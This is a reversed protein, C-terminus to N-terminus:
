RSPVEATIFTAGTAANTGVYYGGAACNGPAACALGALVPYWGAGPSTMGPPVRAAGWTGRVEGALFVQTPREGPSELILGRGWL